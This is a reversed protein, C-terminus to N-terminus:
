KKHKRYTHKGRRKIRTRRKGGKKLTANPTASHTANPTLMSKFETATARLTTPPPTAARPALPVHPPLRPPPTAARPTVAASASVAHSTVAASAPTASYAAVYALKAKDLAIKYAKTMYRRATVPHNPLKHYKSQYPPASGSQILDAGPKGYKYEFEIPITKFIAENTELEYHHKTYRKKGHNHRIMIRLVRFFTNNHVYEQIINRLVYMLDIARNHNADDSGYYVQSAERGKICSELQALAGAKDHLAGYKNIKEELADFDSYCMTNEHYNRPPDERPAAM